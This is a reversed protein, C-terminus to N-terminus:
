IGCEKCSSISDDFGCAALNDNCSYNPDLMIVDGQCNADKFCFLCGTEYIKVSSVQDNFDGDLNYCDTIIAFMYIGGNNINQPDRYFMTYADGNVQILLLGFLLFNLFKYVQM